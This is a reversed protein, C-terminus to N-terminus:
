RQGPIQIKELLFVNGEQYFGLGLWHGQFSRAATNRIPTLNLQILATSLAHHLQIQQSCAKNWTLHELKKVMLCRGVWIHDHLQIHTENLFLNRWSKKDTFTQDTYRNPLYGLDNVNNELLLPHCTSFTLSARSQVQPNGFLHGPGAAGASGSCSILPFIKMCTGLVWAEWKSMLSRGLYWIFDWVM